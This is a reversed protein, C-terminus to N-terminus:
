SSAPTKLFYLSKPSKPRQSLPTSSGDSPELVLAGSSSYDMKLGCEGRIEELEPNLNQTSVFFHLNGAKRILSAVRKGFSPICESLRAADDIIVITPSNGEQSSEELTALVKEFYRWDFYGYIPFRVYPSTRLGQYEIGKSDYIIFHVENPSHEKMLDSLLRCLYVTKGAGTNGLLFLGKLQDLPLSYEKGTADSGLYVDIM